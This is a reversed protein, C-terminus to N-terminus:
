PRYFEDGIQSKQNIKKVDKPYFEQSETIPFSSKKSLEQIRAYAELINFGTNQPANEARLKERCSESAFNLTTLLGSILLTYAGLELWSLPGKTLTAVLGKRKSDSKEQNKTYNKM